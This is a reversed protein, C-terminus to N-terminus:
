NQTNFSFAAQVRDGLQKTACRDGPDQCYHRLRDYTNPASLSFKSVKKACVEKHM